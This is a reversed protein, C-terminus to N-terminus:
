MEESLAGIPTRLLAQAVMAKPKLGSQENPEEKSHPANNDGPYSWIGSELRFTEM